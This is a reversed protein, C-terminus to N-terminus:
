EEAEEWKSFLANCSDCPKDVPRKDYNKCNDCRKEIDRELEAYLMTHFYTAGSPQGNPNIVERKILKWGELLAQNVEDDFQKNNDLRNKITKIQKM